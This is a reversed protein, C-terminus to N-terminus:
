CGAIRSPSSSKAAFNQVVEIQKASFPRVEQRYIGIAGIMEGEQLMPVVVLTRIGALEVAAVVFPDRNAYGELARVDAIQIVEKTAALRSLASEPRRIFHVAWALRLTHKRRTTCRLQASRM